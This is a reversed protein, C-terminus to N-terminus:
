AGAQPYVQRATRMVLSVFSHPDRRAEDFEEPTLFILDFEAAFLRLEAVLNKTRLPPPLRCPGVLLLDIDSNHSATGKANSGFLYIASAQSCHVIRDVIRDIEEQDAIMLSRGTGSYTLALEPGFESRGPSVNIPITMTGTGTAPNASFKEGIGRIAGGVKPLSLAPLSGNGTKAGAGDPASAISGQMGRADSISSLASTSSDSLQGSERDMWEEPAPLNFHSVGYLQDISGAAATNAFRDNM